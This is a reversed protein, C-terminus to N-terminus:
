VGPLQYNDGGTSLLSRLSALAAAGVVQSMPNTTQSELPWDTLERFILFFILFLACCQLEVFCELQKM